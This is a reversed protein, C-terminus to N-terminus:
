KLSLQTLLEDISLIAKALLYNVKSEKVEPLTYESCHYLLVKATKLLQKKQAKTFRKDTSM